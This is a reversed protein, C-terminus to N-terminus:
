DEVSLLKKRSHHGNIIRIKKSGFHKKLIELLRDNALNREAKPKVSIEFYNDKIEKLSEKKAGPTLTIHIYM